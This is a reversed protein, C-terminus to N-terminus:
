GCHRFEPYVAFAMPDPQREDLLYIQQFPCSRLSQLLNPVIQALLMAVDEFNQIEISYFPTNRIGARSYHVILDVATKDSPGYHCAKKQVSTVLADLAWRHDYSGGVLDFMIWHPDPHYVNFHVERLFARLTPWRDLNRCPYGQPGDWEPHRHWEESVVKILKGFEQAMSSLSAANPRRIEPAPGLSASWLSTPPQPHCELLCALIAKEAKERNVSTQMQGGELWEVLQFDRQSGDAMTCNIDAHRDEEDVQWKQVDRAMGPFAVLFSEFTYQARKTKDWSM